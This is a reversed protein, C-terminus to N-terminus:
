TIQISRPRSKGRCWDHLTSLSLKVGYTKQMYEKIKPYSMCKKRLSIVKFYTEPKHNKWEKQKSVTIVGDFEPSRSHIKSGDTEIEVAIIKGDGKLIFADPITRSNLRVVRLGANRLEKIASVLMKEHKESPM